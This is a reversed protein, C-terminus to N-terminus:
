CDQKRTRWACTVQTALYDRTIEFSQSQSALDAERDHLEGQLQLSAHLYTLLTQM